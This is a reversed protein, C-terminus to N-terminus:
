HHPQQLLLGGGPTVSSKLRDYNLDNARGDNNDSSDSETGCARAGACEGRVRRAAKDAKAVLLRAEGM